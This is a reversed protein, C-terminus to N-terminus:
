EWTKESLRQALERDDTFQGVEDKLNVFRAGPMGGPSVKMYNTTIADKGCFFRHGSEIDYDCVVKAEAIMAKIRDDYEDTDRGQVLTRSFKNGDSEVDFVSDIAWVCQVAKNAYV